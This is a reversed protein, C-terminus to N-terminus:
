IPNIRMPISFRFAELAPQGDPMNHRDFVAIKKPSRKRGTEMGSQVFSRWPATDGRLLPHLRCILGLQNTRRTPPRRAGLSSEEDDGPNCLGHADDPIVAM